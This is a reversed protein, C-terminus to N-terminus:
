LELRMLWRTAGGSHGSTPQVRHFGAAEFLSTTGVYALTPSMRELPDVPYAELMPVRQSRAYSITGELLRASLGQRRFPPRIVFCFVSWVPMDDLRPITRSNMLRPLNSRPAFGCWGAPIGDVYGVVGPVPDNRSFERLRAPRGSGILRSNEANPVRYTLCWCVPADVKKPALIAAV